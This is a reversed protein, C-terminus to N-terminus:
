YSKLSFLAAIVKGSAGVLNLLGALSMIIPRTKSEFTKWIDSWLYMLLVDGIRALFEKNTTDYSRKVDNSFRSCHDFAQKTRRALATSFQLCYLSWLRRHASQLYGDIELSAVIFPQDSETATNTFCMPRRKTFKELHIQQYKQMIRNQLVTVWAFIPGYHQFFNRLWLFWRLDTNNTPLELNCIADISHQPVPLKGHQVAHHQYKITSSFFKCKELKITFSGNRFLTLIKKVHKIHAEPSKSFIVIDDTYVFAFPRQVPSLTDEM